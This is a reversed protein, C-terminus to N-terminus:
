RLISTYMGPYITWDLFPISLLCPQHHLDDGEGDDMTRCFPSFFRGHKSWRENAGITSGLQRLSDLTRSPERSWDSLGTFIGELDQPFQSSVHLWRCKLPESVGEEGRLWKMWGYSDRLQELKQTEFSNAGINPDPLTRPFADIDTHIPILTSAPVEDMDLRAPRGEKPRQLRVDHVLVQAPTLRKARWFDHSRWQSGDYTSEFATKHEGNAFEPPRAPLTMDHERPQWLFPM